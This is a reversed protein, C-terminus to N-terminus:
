FADSRKCIAVDLKLGCATTTQYEGCINKAERGKNEENGPQFQDQSETAERSWQELDKKQTSAVLLKPTPSRVKKRKQPTEFESGGDGNRKWAARTEQM